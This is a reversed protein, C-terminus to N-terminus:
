PMKEEAYEAAISKTKERKGQFNRHLKCIFRLSFIPTPRAMLMPTNAPAVATTLVVFTSSISDMSIPIDDETHRGVRCM